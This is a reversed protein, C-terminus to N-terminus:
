TEHLWSGKHKGWTLYVKGNGFDKLIQILTLGDWYPLTFKKHDVGKLSANVAKMMGVGLQAHTTDHVLVIGGKKMRPFITKLDREVTDKDHAGDHLVVDFVEYTLKSLMKDSKGKWYRWVDKYQKFEENSIFISRDDLGNSILKGKTLELAKLIVPTTRGVGFEFVSKAQMGLVISYLTMYHLCFGSRVCHQNAILQQFDKM